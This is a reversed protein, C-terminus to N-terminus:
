RDPPSSTRTYPWGAGLLLMLIFLATIRPAELLSAFLGVVLVASVSALAACAAVDGSGLRRVLRWLAAIVLSGVALLGLWGQEFRLQVFFNEIHWPLHDDASFFWFDGGRSFDGNRILDHSAEDYLGVVRVDVSTGPKFNVLALEVPRRQYWAGHGLERSDFVLEEHSWDRPSGELVFEAWMCTFSYLLSKECIPVNLTAGPNPSRFEVVLRYKGDPRISVRQGLYVAEGGGLRVYSLNGDRHYSFTGPPPGEASGYFYREPFTGLGAGLIQGTWTAPILSLADRWHEMRTQADVDLKSFRWQMYSGGVIPLAVCASIVGLAGVLGAVAVWRVALRGNALATAMLVLIAVAYGAYGGRAYTVAMVYTASVFVSAALVKRAISRGSVAGLLAFPIAAVLYTEIYGGGTHMEFLTATIRYVSSFHLLGPFVHREWLAALVVGALGLSMGAVLSNRWNRGAQADSRVLAFLVLGSLFGKLTRLANYHSYYNAFANLDLPQLPFLGVIASAVASVSLWTLLSWRVTPVDMIVAQQRPLALRVALMVLMLMDFETIFLWGTIPALNALPLAALLLPVSLSPVRWVLLACAALPFGVAAPGLPYSAVVMSLVAILAVSAAIRLGSPRSNPAVPGSGLHRAAAISRRGTSANPDEQVPAARDASRHEPRLGEVGRDM